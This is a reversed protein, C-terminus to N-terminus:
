LYTRLKNYKCLNTMESSYDNFNIYLTKLWIAQLNAHFLRMQPPVIHLDNVTGSRYPVALDSHGVAVTKSHDEICLNLEKKGRLISPKKATANKIKDGFFLLPHTNKRQM